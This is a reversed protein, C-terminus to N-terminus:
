FRISKVLNMLRCYNEFSVDSPISHDSHYIYGGNEAMMLKSLIRRMADEAGDAIDGCDINGMFALQKLYKDKLIRIDLGASVQLPQILVIGCEILDEFLLGANGCCHLIFDIGNEKLFAGIKRYCPKFIQRWTDPSFLLGKNSALDDVMFYGDPNIGLGICYKLASITIDTQLEAMESVWEPELVLDMLLAEFGRHRWTAEWPGYNAFMVYKQLAYITEFEHKVDDWRPYATFHKFYSKSDLRAEKDVPDFIWSKKLELWADKDRTVHEKFHLTPELHACFATYGYRDSFIMGDTNDELVRMALRPSSDLHMFFTDFDFYESPTVDSPLGEAHWRRITTDWFFDSVPVRGVPQYKIAARFLERPTCGSIQM